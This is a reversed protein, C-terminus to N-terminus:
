EIHFAWRLGPQQKTTWVEWVYVAGKKFELREPIEVELFTGREDPEVVVQAQWLYEESEPGQLLVFVKGANVPAPFRLVEPARELLGYPGFEQRSPDMAKDSARTMGWALFVLFAGFILVVTATTKNRSVSPRPTSLTSRSPASLVRPPTDQMLAAALPDAALITETGPPAPGTRLSHYAATSPGSQAERQRRVVQSLWGIADRCETCDRAHQSARRAAEPELKGIVLSVVESQRECTVTDAKERPPWANVPM